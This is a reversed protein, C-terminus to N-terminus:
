ISNLAEIATLFVVVAGGPAILAFLFATGVTKYARKESRRQRVLEISALVLAVIGFVAPLISFAPITSILVSPDFMTAWAGGDMLLGLSGFFIAARGLVPPERETPLAATAYSLATVGGGRPMSAGLPVAGFFQRQTPEL